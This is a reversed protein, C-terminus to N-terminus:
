ASAWRSVIREVLRMYWRRGIGMDRCSLVLHPVRCLTSAWGAVVNAPPLFSHVIDPQFHRILRVLRWVLRIDWIGKGNLLRVNVGSAALEKSIQGDGKLACVMCDIQSQDLHTVLDRIQGETGGVGLGVAVYLVKVRRQRTSSRGEHKLGEHCCEAMAGASKWDSRVRAGHSDSAAVPGELCRPM